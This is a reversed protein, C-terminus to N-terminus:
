GPYKLHKSQQKADQTFHHVWMEYMIVLKFVPDEELFFLNLYAPCFTHRTHKQDVTLLRTRNQRFAKENCSGRYFCFTRKGTSAIHIYREIVQM